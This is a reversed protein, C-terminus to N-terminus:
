KYRFFVFVVLFLFFERLLWVGKFSVRSRNNIMSQGVEAMGQRQRIKKIEAKKREM